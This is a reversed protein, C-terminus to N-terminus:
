RRIKRFIDMGNYILYFSVAISGFADIYMTLPHTPAITVTALAIVICIDVSAKGLYLRQQAAIVPDPQRRNMARYRQWFCINVVLGLFAIVLGLLTRESQEASLLRVIGVIILAVGSISMAAGVTYNTLRELRGTYDADECSSKRLRHYVLWSVFTAILESTRRLFDAM